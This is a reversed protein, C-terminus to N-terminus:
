NRDDVRVGCRDCHRLVGGPLGQAIKDGIRGALWARQTQAHDGTRRGLNESGTERSGCFEVKDINREFAVGVARDGKGSIMDIQM